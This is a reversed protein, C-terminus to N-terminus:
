RPKRFSGDGLKTPMQLKTTEEGKRWADWARLCLYLVTEQKVKTGHRQAEYHDRGLRERLLVVPHVRGPEQDTLGTATRLYELFVDRDGPSRQGLLWYLFGAVGAPVVPPKLKWGTAFEAAEEVRAVRGAEEAPDRGEQPELAALVEARTPKYTNGTARGADWLVVRRAVTYLMTGNKRGDATLYDAGSRSKGTNIFPFARDIEETTGTTVWLELSFDDPDAVKGAEALKMGTEIIALMRQQGDRLVREDAEEGSYIVPEPSKQWRYNEMDRAYRTVVLGSPKRGCKATELSARAHAPTIVEWQSHM